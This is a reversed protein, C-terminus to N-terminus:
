KHTRTIRALSRRAYRANPDFPGDLKVYYREAGPLSPGFYPCDSGAALSVRFGLNLYPYWNQVGLRGGQLGEIFDVLGFPM